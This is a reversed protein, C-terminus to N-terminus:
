SLLWKLYQGYGISAIAVLALTFGAVTFVNQGAAFKRWNTVAEILPSALMSSAVWLAIMPSIIRTPTANLGMVFFNNIMFWFLAFALLMVWTSTALVLLDPRPGSGGTVYKASVAGSIHIVCGGLFFFLITLPLGTAPRRFFTFVLFQVGIAAALILNWRLADILMTKAEM